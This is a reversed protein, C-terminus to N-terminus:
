ATQGAHQEARELRAEWKKTYAYQMIHLFLLVALLILNIGMMTPSPFSLVAGIVFGIIWVGIGIVAMLYVPEEGKLIGYIAGMLLSIYYLILMPIMLVDPASQLWGISFMKGLLGFIVMIGLIPLPLYTTFTLFRFSRSRIMSKRKEKETM